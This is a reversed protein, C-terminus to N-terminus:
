VSSLTLSIVPIIRLMFATLVHVSIRSHMITSSLLCAVCSSLWRFASVAYMIFSKGYVLTLTLSFICGYHSNLPLIANISPISIFSLLIMSVAGRCCLANSFSCILLTPMSFIHSSAFSEAYQTLMSALILFALLFQMVHRSSWPVFSFSLGIGCSMSLLGPFVASASM